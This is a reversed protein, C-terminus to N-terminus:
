KKLDYAIVVETQSIVLFIRQCHNMIMNSKFYKNTKVHGALCDKNSNVIFFCKKHLAKM